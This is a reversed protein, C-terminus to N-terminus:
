FDVIFGNSSPFQKLKPASWFHYQSPLSENPVGFTSTWHCKFVNILLVFPFHIKRRYLPYCNFLCGLCGFDNIGIFQSHGSQSEFKM